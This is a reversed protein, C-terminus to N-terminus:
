VVTRGRPSLTTVARLDPMATRIPAVLAPFARTWSKWPVPRFFLFGFALLPTRRFTGPGVRTTSFLWFSLFPGYRTTIVAPPRVKTLRADSLFYPSPCRVATGSVGGVHPELRFTARSWRGPSLGTRGM